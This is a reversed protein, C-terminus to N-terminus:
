GMKKRRRISGFAESENNGKMKESVEEVRQSKLELLHVAM